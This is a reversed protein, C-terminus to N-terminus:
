GRVLKLVRGDGALLYLEGGADVGFSIAVSSGISAIWETQESVTSGNVRLSRVWGSCFDSYFYRGALEPLAAGRYVYGGTISCGQAHDYEAIPPTLGTKACPDNPYCLSGEVTNWGYNLGAANAAVVNIEEIRGQGVDAIYLQGSAPDFSYRWPNRLGIAWNERRAGPQSWNPNDAPVTYPLQNVNLRLLKGLLTAANQGNRNPDGGGGGDGTSLYLMGDTGFAVRGGYHNTFGPHAIRIVPEGPTQLVNSDAASVRFREVVIDGSGTEIFHVFVFPQGTAYQPHFAFSLLGAEGSTTVRARIDLFPTARLAGNDVVRLRGPREAIFYRADGPPAQLDIPQQLGDSAGFIQQTTLRLPAPPPSPTPAPPPTTGSDSGGCGALPLALSLAATFIAFQRQM